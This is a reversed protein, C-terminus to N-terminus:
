RGGHLSDLHMHEVLSCIVHVITIHCEQIRPTNNSPVAIALDVEDGLKGGRGTLGITHVGRKKAAAVANLVNESNGSTSIAVLVDEPRGLAEVQRQFIQAVGYDNAIATLVSTDTTLAIAPLALRQTKAELRGVLEAAFHQADAASGGNGCAMLKGGGKISQTIITAAEIIQDLAVSGLTRKLDSSEFLQSQVLSAWQAPQIETM